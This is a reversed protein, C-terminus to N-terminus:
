SWLQIGEWEYWLTFLLSTLWEPSASISVRQALSKYESYIPFYPVNFFCPSLCVETNQQVSHWINELHIFQVFLNNLSVLIM